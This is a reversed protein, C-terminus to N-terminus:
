VMEHYIIDKKGVYKILCINKNNIVDNDILFKVTKNSPLSALRGEAM